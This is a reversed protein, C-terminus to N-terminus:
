LLVRAPRGTVSVGEPATAKLESVARAGRTRASPFRGLANPRVHSLLVLSSTEPDVAYLVGDKEMGDKTAVRVHRGVQRRLLGEDSFNM